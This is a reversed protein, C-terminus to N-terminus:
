ILSIPNIEGKMRPREVAVAQHGPRPAGTGPAGSRTPRDDASTM